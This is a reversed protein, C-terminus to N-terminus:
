LRSLIHQNVMSVGSLMSGVIGLFGQDTGALFLNHYGIDGNKIKEPCGYIAGEKKATFREITLPTFTDEYVIDQSFNGIIKELALKSHRATASKAALYAPRDAALSKWRSYDALHTARLELYPQAALGQFNGPFCIVGSNYDVRNEPRQYRFQKNTNYFIITKDQPLIKKCSAHLRFISEVFGLRPRQKQVPPVTLCALTEEYGITSIMADCTIVEGDALEVGTVKRDQHIIRAVPAQLRIKGGFEQYQSLLIELFDKISGEPRFMGELFIARFMIIFQGLDMDNEVSSGYFMLPCLLMDVLLPNDLTTTLLTRASRFPAAQFPDYEKITQLLRSFGPASRPFKTVIEHHLLDFDNSFSLTEQNAFFIESIIQEHFIFDKRRLKLQRLLRNLPASKDQPPAFNTIAHLGTELLSNNRYYYSNLGGVRSHKELILVGCDMSSGTDSSELVSSSPGCALSPRTDGAGPISLPRGPNFRAFRIAAALGSLGGGIILLPIHM